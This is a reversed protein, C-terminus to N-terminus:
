VNAAVLEELTERVIEELASYQDLTLDPIRQKAKSPIGLIKTRARSAINVWTKKVEDADVVKGMKRDLELKLLRAHLAEKLAKSQAITPNSFRPEPAPQGPAEPARPLPPAIEPGPGPPHVGLGNVRNQSQTNELWARDALEVDILKKGKADTEFPIRGDRMAYSVAAKSVHRHRAYEAPSVKQGM